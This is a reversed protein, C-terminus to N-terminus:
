LEDLNLKDLGPIEILGKVINEEIIEKIEYDVEKDTLTKENSQFIFRFALKSVNDKDKFYDFMFIECLNKTDSNMIKECFQDIDKEYTIKFSLDRYVIPFESIEKYEHDKSKVIEVSNFFDIKQNIANFPMEMVYLRNKLKSDYKSRDIESIYKSVDTGLKEFIEILFEKDLKKNFDKLNNGLRGSVAITLFRESVLDPNKKYVDSIEYLKISDKNRNENYITNQILSDELSNRMFPKNSDIPNDIKISENGSFSSFPFNIVETFGYSALYSKFKREILDNSVKNINISFEKKPINDYGIIRLIEEAIDNESLIDSRFSPSIIEGENFKFGISILKKMIDDNDFEYGIIKSINEPNYPIITKTSEKYDKSFIKLDIIETHDSIIKIFRRLNFEQADRDVGREFKYAAESNLGYKITKGIIAEPNFHACEILVKHTNKSCSTAKGGMVGALNVIDNDIKFYSNTGTLQIKTDLVTEFESNVLSSEFSFKGYIKEYDYCHTPLGTEYALYNSIDTFFNNKKIDFDSFFSQLYNEYEKIKNQNIEVYLFTVKDLTNSDNNEFNFNFDLIEEEYVSYPFGSECLSNLDRSLGMLSLCDGRNPTFEIDFTDNDIEHEHGLQFLYSSVTEINIEKPLFNKLHDFHIKM